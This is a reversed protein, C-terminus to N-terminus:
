ALTKFDDESVIELAAQIIALIEELKAQGVTSRIQQGRGLNHATVEQFSPAGPGDNRQTSAIPM